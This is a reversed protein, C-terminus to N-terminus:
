HVFHDQDYSSPLAYCVIFAIAELSTKDSPGMGKVRRKNGSNAGM